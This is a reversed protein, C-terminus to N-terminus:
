LFLILARMLKRHVRRGRGGWFRGLRLSLKRYVRRGSGRGRGAGVVMCDSFDLVDHRVKRLLYMATVHGIMHRKQKFYAVLEISRPRSGNLPGFVAKPQDKTLGGHRPRLWFRWCGGWLFSEFM